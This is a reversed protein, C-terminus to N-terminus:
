APADAGSILWNAAVMLPKWGPSVITASVVAAAANTRVPELIETTSLTPPALSPAIANASPTEAASANAVGPASTAGEAGHKAAPVLIAVVRPITGTSHTRM